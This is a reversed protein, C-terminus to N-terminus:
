TEGIRPDYEDGPQPPEGSSHNLIRNFVTLDAKKKRELFFESTKMASIKEALATIIFQNISIGDQAALREIEAKLSRPLRLAYNAITNKVEKM